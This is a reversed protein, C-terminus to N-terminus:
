PCDTAFRAIRTEPSNEEFIVECSGSGPTFRDGIKLVRKEGAVRIDVSYGRMKLLKFTFAGDMLSAEAKERVVVTRYGEDAHATGAAGAVGLVLIALFWRM